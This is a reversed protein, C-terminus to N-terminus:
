KPAARGAARRAAARRAFRAPDLAAVLKGEIPLPEGELASALVEAGLSSWVLGRSGLGALAHVDGAMPGVLPLRDPAVSRFGVRGEAPWADIEQAPLLARLRELNGEHSSARPMPDDDDLDFSAGVVCIGEVSPLVFGGRLVVVRPAEIDQAAVHSVQGRVSRLRLDPMPQLRLLDHSNALIVLGEGPLARLETNYSKKLRAGCAELLAHVLSRPQVWGAQPFWLGGSGVAVGAHASAEERSV